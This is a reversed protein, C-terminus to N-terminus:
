LFRNNRDVDELTNWSTESCNVPLEIYKYFAFICTTYHPLSLEQAQHKGMSTLSVFLVLLQPIM